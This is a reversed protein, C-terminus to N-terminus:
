EEEESSFEAGTRLIYALLGDGYIQMDIDDCMCQV